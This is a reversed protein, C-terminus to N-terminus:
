PMQNCSPCVNDQQPVNDGCNRCKKFHTKVGREIGQEFDDNIPIRNGNKKKPNKKKKVTIITVITLGVILVLAAGLAIVLGLNETIWEMLQTYLLGTEPDFTKQRCLWGVRMENPCGEMLLPVLGRM